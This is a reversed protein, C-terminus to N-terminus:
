QSVRRLLPTRPGLRSRADGLPAQSSRLRQWKRSSQSARRLLPTRPGLRSRADRQTAAFQAATAVKTPEQSARRLLPTRAGLGRPERPFQSSTLQRM